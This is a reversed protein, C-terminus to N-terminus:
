HISIGKEKLRSKIQGAYEEDTMEDRKGYTGSASSPHKIYIIPLKTKERLEARYEKTFWGRTQPSNEAFMFVICEPNFEKIKNLIREKNDECLKLKVENDLDGFEKNSTRLGILDTFDFNNKYVLGLENELAGKIKQDSPSKSRYNECGETKAQKSPNIGVLLIRM